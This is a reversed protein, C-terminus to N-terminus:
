TRNIIRNFLTAVMIGVILTSFAFLASFGTMALGFILLIPFAFAVTTDFGLRLKSAIIFYFIAAIIVALAVSGILESVFICRLDLLECAM